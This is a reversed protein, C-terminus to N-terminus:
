HVAGTAAPAATAASPSSPQTPTSTTTTTATTTTSTPTTTTATAATPGYVYANVTLTAQVQPYKKKGQGFVIESVNYLRGSAALAGDNVRVLNRLRLLFDNLDYYSGEFILAIPVETYGTGAVPTGPTISDFQIGAARSVNNLELLVDPIDPETPMVRALRSVDAIRVHLNPSSSRAAAQLSALETRSSAVQARLDSAKSREPSVALLYGAVAALLVGVVAVIIKTNKPLPRKM